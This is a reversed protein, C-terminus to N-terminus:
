KLKKLVANIVMKATPKINDPIRLYKKLVNKDINKYAADTATIINTKINNLSKNYMQSVKPYINRSLNEGDYNLTAILLVSEAIYHTGNHSLNYGITVLENIIKTKIYATNANSQKNEVLKKISSIIISFSTTNLFSDFILSHSKINKALLEDNALFIISDKYENQKAIPLKELIDLGDYFALQYDILVIDYHRDTLAHLAERGNKALYSIRVDPIYLSIYNLLDQLNQLNKNAILLNLMKEEKNTILIKFDEKIYISLM